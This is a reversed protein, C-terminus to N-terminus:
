VKSDSEATSEKNEVQCQEQEEKLKLDTLKRIQTPTLKKRRCSIFPGTLQQEQSMTTTTATSSLSSTPQLNSSLQTTSLHSLHDLGPAAIRDKLNDHHKYYMYNRLAM